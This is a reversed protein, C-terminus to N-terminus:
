GRKRGEIIEHCDRCLGLFNTPELRLEPYEDVPKKHHVLTAIAIKNSM